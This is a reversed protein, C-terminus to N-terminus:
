DTEPAQADEEAPAEARATVVPAVPADLPDVLAGDADLAWFAVRVRRLPGELGPVAARLLEEPRVSVGDPHLALRLGVWLEGEPRGLAARHAAVISEDGLAALTPRVDTTREQGKRVVTVPLPGDGASWTALRAALAAEAEEEPAGLAAAAARRPVGLVHDARQVQRTLRPTDKPARRLATFRVGPLSVANLRDVLEGESAGNAGDAAAADEPPLCLVDCLESLGEAGTPLPAAFALQPLPHFGGSYAVRVGARRLTRVVHRLLDLHGLVRATGRKEYRLRWRELGPESMGVGVPPLAAGAVTDAVEAAWACPDAAPADRDCAAGCRFCRAAREAPREADHAGCAPTTAERFARRREARLFGRRVGPDAYDWPLGGPDPWAGLYREPDVGTAAFAAQWLEPRLQDNWGDFRAGNRWAHEIADAVRADGRALVGELRSVFPDNTKVTLRQRRGEDRVLQLKRRLEDESDMAEWQFPCHPKPVHNSVSITVDVRRGRGEHRPADRVAAALDVIARLDDDTEGPLGVMFYLKVRRWGRASARRVADLLQAATVNKNIVRRLRESGAEPALTLGTKRVRVIQDLLADSLGYARLSSVSVAVRRPDLAEMLAPVLAELPRYDATSLSSLSTEEYGGLRLGELVTRAVDQAPRERVPRYLMGAQCFRCGQQCGRAVEVAVRDFIAEATPVIGDSPFPHRALDAVARPRPWPAALAPDRPAQPVLAGSRPDLAREHLAPVYVNPHAAHLAALLDARATGAARLRRVDRLLPLLADEGEGLLFLDFFPALPEAHLANPGGGLVLPDSDRRDAARLPVGGLDLMTLVNTATLEYQLSLGVVDVAALPSREDLTVLPRGTRRLAAELDPWPAFVRDARVDPDRDLLALLIALGQHSMGIEYVDPYGLAVHLARGGDAPAVIPRRARYEGGVYRSPREVEDLLDDYPHSVCGLPTSPDSM